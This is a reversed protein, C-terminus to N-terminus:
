SAGPTTRSRIEAVVLAAPSVLAGVVLWAVGFGVPKSFNSLVPVVLLLAVAFGAVWGLVLWRTWPQGLEGGARLADRARAVAVVSAVGVGVAVVGGVRMASAQRLETASPQDGFFTLTVVGSGIAFYGALLVTGVLQVM